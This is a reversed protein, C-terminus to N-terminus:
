DKKDIDNWLAMMADSTGIASGLVAYILIFVVWLKEGVGHLRDWGFLKIWIVVPMVVLLVGNGLAGLLAMVDAFYPAFVAFCVVITMLSTRLLIRYLYERLRGVKAVTIGLHEEINLCVSIMYIPLALLVHATIMTISITVAWGAPLSLYVPSSTQDGYTLYAPIGILFYMSTLLSIALCNVKPWASPTKMGAEINPFIVNGGYAFNLTGLAIPIKRFNIIDHSSNPHNPYDVVSSYSVVVAVLSTTLAGFLSLWVAEKITKSLVFPVGMVAACIYVWDEMRLDVSNQLLGHLNQGALILFLVVTGFSVSNYFFGIVLLGSKGFADFALQPMSLKRTKGDHYLSEILKNNSYVSMVASLTLIALLSWGGQSLAHPVGLIGSGATACILHVFANWNSGKEEPILSQEASIYPTTEAGYNPWDSPKKVTNNSNISSM